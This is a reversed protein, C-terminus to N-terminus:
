LFVKIPQPTVGPFVVYSPALLLLLISEKPQAVAFSLCGFFKSLLKLTQTFIGVSYPPTITFSCVKFKISM